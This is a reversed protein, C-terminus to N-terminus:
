QKGSPFLMMLLEGKPLVAHWTRAKRNEEVLALDRNIAPKGTLGTDKRITIRLPMDREDDPNAAIVLVAGDKTHCAILRGSSISIGTQSFGKMLEGAATEMLKSIGNRGYGIKQRLRDERVLHPPVNFFAASAKANHKVTLVPIEANLLIEAGDARYSGRCRPDNCSESMGGCFGGTPTVVTINKMRGTDKVGFLDELGDVNENGVLNVGAEHLARIQKLTKRSMGRLPPLVLTDVQDPTLKGLNEDFLQFGACVGAKLASEYIYPVDETATKRTDLFSNIVEIMVEKRARRSSESSVYAASRWPRAAPHELVYPWIKLIAEFWRRTFRCAQFGCQDWFHFGDAMLHGSAFAFNAIQRMLTKESRDKWSIGFPPHAYFVAGDPCGQKLRGGTYIEPYIRSGPLAMLSSTLQYLGREFGYGCSIPYDEYQWFANIDTTIKANCVMRVAEPGKLHGAYIHFPGYQGTKLKPNEKRLKKVIDRAMRGVEENAYDQWEEWYKEFVKRTIELPLVKEAKLLKRMAPLDFEPDKVTGLFDILMQLRKGSYSSGWTLNSCPIHNALNVYDAERIIDMNGEISWDDMCRSGIWAFNKRGYVKTVPYVNYKRVAPPLFNACAIYHGNNMQTNKWPDFADTMLGRTETRSDYLFPLGSLLPPPLAGKKRSMVEFTCYDELPNVSPDAGRVRLHYVGCASLTLPEVTLEIRNLTRTGITFMTNKRRFKLQRVPRLFADELIVEFSVPLETASVIEIRFAPEEKEFFYHNEQAFKVALDHRPDDKPLKKLIEKDPRSRFRILAKGTDAVGQGSYLIKGRPTFVTEANDMELDPLTNHHYNEFGVALDFEGAPKMFRVKRRFPWDPKEYIIMYLYKPAIGPPVLVLTKEYVVHKETQDATLVKLYPRTLLDARMCHYNGEGAETEAVGGHFSLAADLCNGYDTLTVDCFIPYWTPADPLPVTFSIPKATKEPLKGEIELHTIKLVDWFHERSFAIKGTGKRIKFSIEERNYIKVKLLTGQVVLEFDMIQGFQAKDAPITRVDAPTFYNLATTGYEVTFEDSKYPNLFRVYQGCGSFTDYRFCVTFGFQEAAAYNIKVSFRVRCDDTDPIVPLFKNGASLLEVCHDGCQIAPVQPMDTNQEVHWGGPLGGTETSFTETYLSIWTKSGAKMTKSSAKM